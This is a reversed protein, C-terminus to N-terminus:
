PFLWASRSEPDPESMDYRWSPAVGREDETEKDEFHVYAFYSDRHGVTPIFSLIHKASFVIGPM